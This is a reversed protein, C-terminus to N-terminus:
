YCSAMFMWGACKHVERFEYKRRSTCTKWCRQLYHLGLAVCVCGVSSGSWWVARFMSAYFNWTLSAVCIKKNKGIVVQM